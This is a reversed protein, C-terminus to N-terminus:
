TCIYPRDHRIISHVTVVLFIHILSLCEDLSCQLQNIVANEEAGGLDMKNVFIFVPIGYKKLLRWLTVTHGQVGDKGSIVLVAYDLVQLTREMEASFDVHGPTQRKYVDVAKHVLVGSVLSLIMSHYFLYVVVFICVYGVLYFLLREKVSLEYVSYDRVM